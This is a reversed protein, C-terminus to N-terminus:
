KVPLMLRFETRGPASEVEIRGNHQDIIKTVVDLGLGTGKGVEKTTFFPDFIKTKVEESMGAGSDIISVVAQGKDLQTRLELTQDETGEMADIANDILNTWVQNLEGPFGLIEGLNPDFAEIVKIQSKRIKFQLMRLTNRIGHHLNVPQRDLSQDMHTYSKVSGILDAIRTSAEAIEKVMKETTLNNNIWNIVPPFYEPGTNELVMELDEEKFGFEVLNEAIEDADEIENDELWDLLEDELEMKESLSLDDDFGDELKKFMMKNVQDVQEDEMKIKIVAKFGEPLLQLHKQLEQASRVIASAPNNLEHALGASLKGLAALKENQQRLTTFTRVRSTMHHVFVSTLEHHERIMEPFKDRHIALVESDELFQGNGQTIKMRSYPLLGTISGGSVRSFERQQNGFVGYLRMCGTLLILLHDAKEGKQFLHDLKKYKVIKGNYIMWKLSEEPANKLGEISKLISLTDSM